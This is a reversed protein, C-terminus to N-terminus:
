SSNMRPVPSLNPHGLVLPSNPVKSIHPVRGIHPPAPTVLQWDTTNAPRTYLALNNGSYKIVTQNRMRGNRLHFSQTKLEEYRADLVPPIFISVKQGPLLNQVHKFITSVSRMNSFEVSITNLYTVEHQWIKSIVMKSVTTPSIGMTNILFSHLAMKVGPLDDTIPSFSLTRRAVEISKLDPLPLPSVSDATSPAVSSTAGGTVQKKNSM